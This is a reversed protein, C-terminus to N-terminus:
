NTTDQGQKGTKKHKKAGEHVSKRFKTIKQNKQKIKAKRKESNGGGGASLEVNIKRGSMKSHHLKLLKQFTSQDQVEVFCFGKSKGEPTFRMRVEFKELCSFYDKIDKETTEYPLNGVFAIFKSKVM